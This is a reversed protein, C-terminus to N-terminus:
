YPLLPLLSEKPSCGEWRPSSSPIGGTASHVHAIDPDPVRHGVLSALQSAVAPAGLGRLDLQTTIPLRLLETELVWHVKETSRQNVLLLLREDTLGRTLHHLLLLSGEDAGHADDFVIVLPRRLTVQRLLDGVADFERLRDEIYAKGHGSDAAGQFVESALPGLDTVLGSEALEGMDVITAVARLIQRWPSYPPM